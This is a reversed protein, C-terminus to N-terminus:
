EILSKDASTCITGTSWKATWMVMVAFAVLGKEANLSTLLLTTEVTAILEAGLAMPDRQTIAM